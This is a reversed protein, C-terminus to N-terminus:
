SDPYEIRVHFFSHLMKKFIKKIRTIDKFTIDSNSLQEHDIKQQILKDVLNNITIDTPEKLSRSAAEVTDAMMLIATERSYPLPGPYTFKSEDVEVTPFNKLITWAGSAGSSTIKLVFKWAAMPM